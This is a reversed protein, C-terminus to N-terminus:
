KMGASVLEWETDVDERKIECSFRLSGKYTGASKCTGMVVWHLESKKGFVYEELDHPFKTKSSLKLEAVVFKKVCELAEREEDREFQEQTYDEETPLMAMVGYAIGGLICLVVVVSIIRDKYFASRAQSTKERRLTMVPRCSAEAPSAAAAEPASGDVFPDKQESMYPDFAPIVIVQECYKCRARKGALSAAVQLEKQCNPCIISM